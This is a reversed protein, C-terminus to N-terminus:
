ISMWRKIKKVGRQIYQRAREKTFGLRDGIEQLTYGEKYYLNFCDLTKSKLINEAIQCIEEYRDDTNFEAAITDGLTLDDTIPKSLSITHQHRKKRTLINCIAYRAQNYRWTERKSKGNWTYDAMMMCSAVEGVADDDLTLFRCNNNIMIKKAGRIYDEINM